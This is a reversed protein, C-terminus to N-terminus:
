EHRLLQHLDDVLLGGDKRLAEGLPLDGELEGRVGLREDRLFAEVGRVARSRELARDLLADEIRERLLHQGTLEVLAVGHHHVRPVALDHEPGLLVRRLDGLLVFLLRDARPLHVLVTRPSPGNLRLVILARATSSSITIAAHSATGPRTNVDDDDGATM